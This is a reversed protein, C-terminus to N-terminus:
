ISVQPLPVALMGDYIEDFELRIARPVLAMCGNTTHIAVLAPLFQLVFTTPVDDVVDVDAHGHM